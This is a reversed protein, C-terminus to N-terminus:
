AYKSYDPGLGARMILAAVDFNRMKIEVSLEDPFLRDILESDLLGPFWVEALHSFKKQVLAQYGGYAQASLNLGIGCHLDTKFSVQRLMEVNLWKISRLLAFLLFFCMNVLHGSWAATDVAAAGTFGPYYRDMWGNAQLFRQYTAFGAVPVLNRIETATYFNKNAVTLNSADMIYNFCLAPEAERGRFLNRIGHLIRYLWLCQPRTILFVDLDLQNHRDRVPNGAALSGSVGVFQVIPNRGLRRLSGLRSQILRRATAIKSAKIAAQGELGPLGAFGDQLIVRGQRRLEDFAASFDAKGSVGLRSAMEEVGIVDNFVGAYCVLTAIGATLPRDSWLSPQPNMIRVANCSTLESYRAKTGLRRWYQSHAM